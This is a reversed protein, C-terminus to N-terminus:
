AREFDVTEGVIRVGGRAELVLAAGTTLRAGAGSLELRNGNGDDIVLAGHEDDLVLRQGGPSTLTYRRVQGGAVGPDPVGGPGYLGGLVVAQSPDELALLVLVTDGVGPLISAGGAAGAGAAMVQLWASDLTGLAPLTVRVRGLRGPDDVDIVRGLTAQWGVAQPPPPPPASSLQCVYGKADDLVHTVEHLVYRGSLEAPLGRVDVPTGPRLRSDGLALGTLTVERGRLRGLHARARRELHAESQAVGGSLTRSAPGVLDAADVTAPVDRGPDADGARAGLPRGELAQWGSAEVADVATLGSVEVSADLLSAGAELPVPEGFGGPGYVHAGDPRVALYLGEADLLSRLLDLDTQRYQVVMERPLGGAHAHVAVGAAGLLERAVEVPDVQAFSRVVDRLRLLHLRDHARLRLAREGGAALAFEVAVVDGAFLPEAEDGVRLELPTGPPWDMAQPLPGPPAAFTLECLDPLSSRQLVTVSTLARSAPEPAPAGALTLVVRTRSAIV